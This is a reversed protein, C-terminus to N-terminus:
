YDFLVPFLPTSPGLIMTYAESTILNLIGGLIHNILTTSSM